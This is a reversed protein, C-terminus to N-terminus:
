KESEKEQIIEIDLVDEIILSHVKFGPYLDIKIYKIFEEIDLENTDEYTDEAFITIKKM